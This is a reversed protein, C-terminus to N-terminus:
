RFSSHWIGGNFEIGLNIDPIIIDIERGGLIKRNNTMLTFDSIKKITNLLEEEPGSVQNACKPYCHMGKRTNNVVTYVYTVWTHGNTCKWKVKRKSNYSILYPPIDNDTSYLALAKPYKTLSIKPLPYTIGNYIINEGKCFPCGKFFRPSVKWVHNKNCQWTAPTPSIRKPNIEDDDSYQFFKLMDDEVDNIRTAEPRKFKEMNCEPCGSNAYTRHSIRTEWTHNKNVRCIWKVKKTSTYKVERPSLANDPSWEKAIDPRITELDNYGPFVASGNCVSCKEPNNIKTYISKEYHCKYKECYWWAKECAGIRKDLIKDDNYVSWMQAVEPHSLFYQRLTPNPM